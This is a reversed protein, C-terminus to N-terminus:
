RVVVLPELRALTAEGIGSVDALEVVDAFPGNAQRYDVISTALVPGIGPLEQLQESTAQNLDLPQGTEASEGPPQAVSSTASAAPPGSGVVIQEGDVVTRALNVGPDAGKGRLGGAAEIADAVRAGAPVQVIGPQRVKGVVHVVQPATSVDESSEEQPEAGGAEVGAVQVGSSTPVAVTNSSSKNGQSFWWVLLLLAAGVILFLLRAMPAATALLEALTRSSGSLADSDEPAAAHSPDAAASRAQTDGRAAAATGLPDSTSAM